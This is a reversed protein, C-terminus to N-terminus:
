TLPYAPLGSNPALRRSSTPAPIDTLPPIQQGGSFARPHKLVVVLHTGFGMRTGSIRIEFGTRDHIRALALAAIAGQNREIIMAATVCVVIAFLITYAILRVARM